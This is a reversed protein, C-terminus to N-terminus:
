GPADPIPLAGRPDPRELRYVFITYGIVDVLRQGRVIRRLSERFEPTYYPGQLNTASIALWGPVPLRPAPDPSEFLYGGPLNIHRIGYYRPDATGFYSLGIPETIGREDLWRKLYKLDQGWDLSSDVLREYGHRPGGALENFYALFHPYVVSPRWPPSFVVVSSAAITALVLVGAARRRRPAWRAWPRALSGALVFLFPYIPLLHRHGISFRSDIAAGLYVAVPIGICAVDVWRRDRRRVIWGLGAAILALSPLPTKLLFSVPFFARFGFNSYRGLLFSPRLLARRQAFALGFLYAEPLLHWRSALLIVRGALDPSTSRMATVLRAEDPWTGSAILAKTAALHRVESEVPMFGPLPPWDGPVLDTFGLVSEARAAQLPDRAASYRFGYAAWFGGYAILMVTPAIVLVTLARGLPKSRALGAPRRGPWDENSVIRVLAILACIPVLLTASLKSALALAAFAGVGAVNNATLRRCTRWCFYVAGFIFLSAGLDTTVLSSHAIFNPDCCYLALALVGGAAGHLERAWLFILAALGLGLLVIQLRGLLLLRDADNYFAERGLVTTSPLAKPDGVGLARLVEDRVGYLLHHGVEFGANEDVLGRAWAIQLAGLTSVGTSTALTEPASEIAPPWVHAALLPLAAWEKVLPPHEPNLRFDHWVLSTYGGPLHATEDFTASTTRAHQVAAVVFWGVLAAALM